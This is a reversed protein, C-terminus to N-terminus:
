KFNRKRFIIISLSLILASYCLAYVIAYGLDFSTFDNNDPHIVRSRQNFLALNPSAHYLWITAHYWFKKAQEMKDYGGANQAMMEAFYFIDRSLRGIIVTMITFLASLTPNTFTSYLLAFATVIALEFCTLWSTVMLNKAYEPTYVGFFTGLGMGAAKVAAWIYYLWVPMSVTVRGDADVHRLAQVMTDYDTLKQWHMAIIFFLTMILVNVCITLLLGFYKGLLFHGRDIPKSVITYLTKKEMENYILTIGIFVAILLGFFNVAAMGFNQIIRDHDSITFNRLVGSFILLLIAFVLILYLIRNRVAERFTNHAIAIIKLM